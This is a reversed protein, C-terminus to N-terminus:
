DRPVGRRGRRGGGRLAAAHQLAARHLPERHHQLQGAPTSGNPLHMPSAPSTPRGRWTPAERTLCSHHSYARVRLTPLSRTELLSTIIASWVRLWESVALLVGVQVVLVDLAQVPSSVIGAGAVVLASQTLAKAALSGVIAYGGFICLSIGVINLGVGLRSASAVQEAAQAASPLKRGFRHELRGYGRSHMASAVACALGGISLLRGIITTLTAASTVSNAFLLTVLAVSSLVAQSWWSLYGLRKCSYRIQELPALASKGFSFLKATPPTCRAAPSCSAIRRPPHWSVPQSRPALVRRPVLLSAVRPPSLAAGRSAAALLLTVKLCM